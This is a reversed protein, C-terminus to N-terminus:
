PGSFIKIEDIEIIADKMDDPIDELYVWIRNTEGHLRTYETYKADETEKRYIISTQVQDAKYKELDFPEGNIYSISKALVYGGVVLCCLLVVLLISKIIIGGTSASSPVKRRKKSKVAM